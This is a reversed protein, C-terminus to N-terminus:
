AKRGRPRRRQQVVIHAGDNTEAPKGPDPDDKRVANADRGVGRAIRDAAGQIANTSQKAAKKM